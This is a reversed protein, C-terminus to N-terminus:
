YRGDIVADMQEQPSLSRYQAETMKGTGKNVGSGEAGGGSVGSRLFSKGLENSTFKELAQAVDQQEDNVLITTNDSTKLRKFNGGNKGLIITRAAERGGGLWDYKDAAKNFDALVDRELVGQQLEEILKGQQAIMEKYNEEQKAYRESLQAQQNEFHKRLVDPQNAALKEQLDKLESTSTTLSTELEKNKNALAEKEEKMKQSNIKLGQVEGKHFSVVADTLKKFEAEDYGDPRFSSLKQEFEALRQEDTLTQNEAM